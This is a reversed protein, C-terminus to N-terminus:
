RLYWVSRMVVVIEQSYLHVIEKQTQFLLERERILQNLNIIQIVIRDIGGRSTKSFYFNAIKDESFCQKM